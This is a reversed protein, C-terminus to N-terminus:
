ILTTMERKLLGLAHSFQANMFMRISPLELSSDESVYHRRSPISSEQATASLYV